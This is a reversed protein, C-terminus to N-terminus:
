KLEPVNLKLEKYEEFSKFLAANVTSPLYQTMSDKKRDKKREKNREKQVADGENHASTGQIRQQIFAPLHDHFNSYIM